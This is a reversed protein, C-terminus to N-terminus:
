PEITKLIKGLSELVKDMDEQPVDQRVGRITNAYVRELQTFVTRGQDTIELINARRDDPNMIRKVLNRAALKDIARTLTTKNQIAHLNIDNQRMTKKQNLLSLIVFHEPLCDYGNQFFAWAIQRYIRRTISYVQFFSDLKM